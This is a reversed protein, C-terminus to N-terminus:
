YVRISCDFPASSVITVLIELLSLYLQNSNKGNTLMYYTKTPCSRVGKYVCMSQVFAFLEFVLQHEVM